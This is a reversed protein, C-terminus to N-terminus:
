PVRAGKDTLVWVRGAGAVSCGGMACGDCSGQCGADVTRLYGLRALDELMRELLIPSVALREALEQVSRIGGQAVVELIQELM